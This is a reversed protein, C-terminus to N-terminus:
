LLAQAEEPEEDKEGDEIERALEGLRGFGERAGMATCGLGGCLASSFFARRTGVACEAAVEDRRAQGAKAARERTCLPPLTLLGAFAAHPERPSRKLTAFIEYCALIPSLKALIWAGRLPPEAETTRHNYAFAFLILSALLM